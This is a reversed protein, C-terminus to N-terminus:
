ITDLMRKLYKLKKEVQDQVDVTLRTGPKIEGVPVLGPEGKFFDEKPLFIKVIVM